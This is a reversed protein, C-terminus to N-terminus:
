EHHLDRNDVSSIDLRRGKGGRFVKTRSGIWRTGGGYGHARVGSNFMKSCGTFKGIVLHRKAHKMFEARNPSHAPQMCAHLIPQHIPPNADNRRPSHHKSSVHPTARHPQSMPHHPQSPSQAISASRPRIPHLSHQLLNEYTFKYLHFIM